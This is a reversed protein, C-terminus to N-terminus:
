ARREAWACFDHPEVLYGASRLWCVQREQADGDIASANRCDRCRVVKERAEGFSYSHWGDAGGHDVIEIIREM